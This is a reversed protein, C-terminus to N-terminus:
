KSSGAHFAEGSVVREMRTSDADQPSTSSHPQQSPPNQVSSQRRATTAHKYFWAEDMTVHFDYKNARMRVVDEPLGEIDVGDAPLQEVRWSAVDKLMDRGKALTRHGEESLFRLHFNKGAAKYESAVKGIADLASYDMIKLDQCHLEVDGPDEEVTFWAVFQRASAFFLHGEADYVRTVHSIGTAPDIAEVDSKSVLLTQAKSDLIYVVVNVLVGCGVAVALNTFVTVVTVIIIILADTRKIKNHMSHRQRQRLSLCSNFMVKFSRWAIMHYVMMWIMGVFAASPILNVFPYAAVSIIIVMIGVTINALRYKGGAAVQLMSHAIMANGGMGALLGAFINGLGLGFAERHSNVSTKTLENVVETTMLQEILAVLALSVATPFIIGLTAFNLPPLEYDQMWLPRPFSGDM